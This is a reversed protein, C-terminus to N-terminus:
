RGGEPGSVAVSAPQEIWGPREYTWDEGSPPRVPMLLGIFNEGIRITTPGPRGQSTVSPFVVMQTGSGAEDPRVRCFKALLSPTYGMGVIGGMRTNDAPVLQRWKISTADQGRVTMSEGTNFRFTLSQAQSLRDVDAAEITVERAGEDRKTTKAMQILTKADASALMITFEAGAYEARSVGLVFRDTASAVLQGGGFELRIVELFPLRASPPSTFLVADSLVTHLAKAKMTNVEPVAVVAGDADQVADEVVAPTDLVSTM